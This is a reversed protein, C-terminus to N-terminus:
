RAVIHGDIVFNVTFPRWQNQDAPGPVIQAEPHTLNGMERFRKAGDHEVIATDSFGADRIGAVAKGIHGVVGGMHEIIGANVLGMHHSKGHATMDGLLERDIMGVAYKREADM